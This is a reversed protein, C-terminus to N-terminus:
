TRRLRRKPMRDNVRIVVSKNNSLNTVRIITNFPFSPHAATLDYMDYIEGNATQRGNFEDAYYSAIGTYSDVKKPNSYMESENSPASQSEKTFRPSSSCSNIALVSLFLLLFYRIIGKNKRIQM